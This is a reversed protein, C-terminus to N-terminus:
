STTEPKGYGGGSPTHMVFKDGEYITVKDCPGMDVKEGTKGRVVWHRGKEGDSGGQMGYPAIRRRNSLISLDMEEGFVIERTM